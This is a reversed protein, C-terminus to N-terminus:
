TVLHKSITVSRTLILEVMHEQSLNPIEVVQQLMEQIAGRNHSAPIRLIIIETIMIMIIIM